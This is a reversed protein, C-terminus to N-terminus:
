HTQVLGAADVEEELRKLEDELRQEYAEAYEEKTVQKAIGVLRQMVVGSSSRMPVWRGRAVSGGSVLMYHLEMRGESAAAQARFLPLEPSRSFKNGDALSSLPLIRFEMAGRSYDFHTYFSSDTHIDAHSQMFQVQHTWIARRHDLYDRHLLVRLFHVNRRSLDEPQKRRQAYLFGCTKRHGGETWDIRQCEESCYCRRRCISCVNLRARYDIRSCKMDDCARLLEIKGHRFAMCLALRGKALLMFRGWDDSIATGQIETITQMDKLAHLLQSLVSYYVLSPPLDKSLVQRFDPDDVVPPDHTACALIIRLLGAKLAKPMWVQLVNETLTWRFLKWTGLLLEVMEDGKINSFAMATDVLATALGTCAFAERSFIAQQVGKLLYVIVARVYSINTESASHRLDHTVLSLHKAIIVALDQQNGGVALLLERFHCMQIPGTAQIFNTVAEGGFFGCAFANTQVCRAWMNGVMTWVGPTSDVLDNSGLDHRIRWVQRLFQARNGHPSCDTIPLQHLCFNYADFFEIWTWIRPWLDICVAASLHFLSLAELSTYARMLIINVEAATEVADVDDSHPIAEPDLNAYLVPLFLVFHPTSGDKILKKLKVLSELSGHAATKALRRLDPPLKVLKDLRLDPHVQPVLALAM